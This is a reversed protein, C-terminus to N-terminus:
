AFKNGQSKRERQKAPRESRDTSRTARRSARATDAARASRNPAPSSEPAASTSMVELCDCVFQNLSKGSAQAMMSVKKHLAPKIRAVFRGSFPKEPSDGSTACFALYDDVSGQFAQRLQRDSIEIALPLRPIETFS